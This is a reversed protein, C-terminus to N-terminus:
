NEYTKFNYYRIIIPKEFKNLQVPLVLKFINIEDSISGFSCIIIGPDM